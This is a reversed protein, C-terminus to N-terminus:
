NGRSAIIRRRNEEQAVRAQNASNKFQQSFGDLSKKLNRINQSIINMNGIASVTGTGKWASEVMQGAKEMHRATLEMDLAIDKLNNAAQEVKSVNIDYDYM